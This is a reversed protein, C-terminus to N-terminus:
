AAVEREADLLRFLVAEGVHEGDIEDAQDLDAITRAVRLIRTMARGTLTMGEVMQLLENKAHPSLRLTADLTTRGASANTTRDNGYRRAQFSRALEVRERVVSSSEGEPDGLLQHKTVRSTEVQMDFRDLLPGSLRSLYKVRQLDSCRCLRTEDTAFGCPCPNMAAILSFRCPYRVTGTTRAIRVYGDEVPGRLSELVDRRYLPLEDLFLIGRHALSAEGPALMGSGGGILGSMSVGHHPSRFPRESLLPVGEPLLGAVSHVRTVELAEERSMRPLIGPARRALMTKGSGPPGKLLVNHGGAAAIELARKADAQGRVEILDPGRDAPRDQKTPPSEPRESRGRLFSVCETLSGVPVIELDEVVDAEAFNARPCILGRAGASRCAMAASLVGRVRRVSGDLGLEGMVVWGDILEPQLRGDGAILGLAIPLDFHTGEKRLAAPALNAVVRAPPWRESSALLASRTRQEAERVSRAPLGVITFKPVGVNVDVEVDVPHADVGILAVSGTRALM